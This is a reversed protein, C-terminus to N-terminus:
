QTVPEGFINYYDSEMIFRKKKPYVYLMRNRLKKIVSVSTYKNIMHFCTMKFDSIFFFM